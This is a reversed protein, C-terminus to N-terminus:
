ATQREAAIARILTDAATEIDATSTSRGLTLRLAGLAVNESLGAAMLSASPTHTGAHCASGTSAAVAPAADLIDAGLRGPVAVMLTNPLANETPTIRVLHPIRASLRRWLHERLESQRGPETALLRGAAEAAAGLGVIGAVNETGPRIGREQGAGLLVPSLSTGRRVYLAGIGKPAYLKHGAVSLLDVHLDDVQVPIKGVAQAADAHVLGGHAHVTEAFDQMPQITGTENHALILTGLGIPGAPWQDLVIRTVHDVPLEHVRWGHQRRLHAVPAITAPHEMASTVMVPTAAQAAAGRIALNNAETGGSTFVIEDPHAALLAAVQERADEVARRAQLGQPTTSSPNGYVETLYPWMAEAVERDVPTTGNHDLYIPKQESM